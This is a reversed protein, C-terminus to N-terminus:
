HGCSCRRGRIRSKSASSLSQVKGSWQYYQEGYLDASVCKDMSLGVTGNTALPNNNYIDL